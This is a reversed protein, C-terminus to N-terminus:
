TRHPYTGYARLVRTLRDQPVQGVVLVLNRDIVALAMEQEGERCRHIAERQLEARQHPFADLSDRALIFLSVPRDDVHGVVYAASQDGLRCTGAGRVAFGSDERPPCRVPFTVERLLYDEIEFDSGSEFPPRVEGAALQEHWAATLQSLSPVDNSGFHRLWPGGLLVLIGAACALLTGFLFWRRSPAPQALGAGVLVGHWLPGDDPAGDDPTRVLKEALLDEFRSQKAFWEACPACNELHQSVNWHLEADGESDHYLHWHRRIEECNM